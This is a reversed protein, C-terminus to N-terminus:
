FEIIYYKIYEPELYECKYIKIIKYNFILKEKYYGGYSRHTHLSQRKRIIIM